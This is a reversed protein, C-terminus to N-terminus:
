LKEGVTSQKPIKEVLEKPIFDKAKKGLFTEPQVYLDKEQGKYELYNGDRSIMFFLDPIAQFISDIKKQSQILEKEILIRSNFLFEQKKFQIYIIYGFVTLIIFISSRIYLQPIPIDLILLDWFSNGKYFFFYGMISDFIWILVGVMIVQLFINTGKRNKKSNEIM